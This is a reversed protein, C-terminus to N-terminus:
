ITKASIEFAFKLHGINTEMCEVLLDYLNGNIMKDAIILSATKFRDIHENYRLNDKSFLIMPANTPANNKITNLKTLADIPNEPLSFLKVANAKIVFQSVKELELSNIDVNNYFYSDCSYQMTQVYLDAIESV